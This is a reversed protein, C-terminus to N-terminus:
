LLINYVDIAWRSKLPASAALPVKINALWSWFSMMLFPSRCSVFWKATSQHPCCRRHQSWFITQWMMGEWFLCPFSSFWRHLFFCRFWSKNIPCDDRFHYTPVGKKCDSHSLLAEQHPQAVEHAHSVVAPRATVLGPSEDPCRAPSSRSDFRSAVRGCLSTAEHRAIKALPNSVAPLGMIWSNTTLPVGAPYPLQCLPMVYVLMPRVYAWLTIAVHHM